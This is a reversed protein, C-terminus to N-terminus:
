IIHIYICTCIQIFNSSMYNTVLKAYPWKPTTGRVIMMHLLLSTTTLKNYNLRFCRCQKIPIKEVFMMPSGAVIHICAM